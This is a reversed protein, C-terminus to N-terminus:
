ADRAGAERRWKAYESSPYRALLATEGFEVAQGDRLLLVYDTNEVAQVRHAIIISTRSRTLANIANGITRETASDLLSTAEDLIVLGPSRLFARAMALLQSEGASLNSGDREIRRDLGGPVAKLWDDLRLLAIAEMVRQDSVGSDFLTINDRLTGEFLEVHQPVYAIAARLSDKDLTRVDTGGLAVSGHQADCMRFLLRAVTTKGSGSKGVIGLSRGAPIHFSVGRLVPDTGDYGFSVNDFSVPIGDDGNWRFSRGSQKSDTRSADALLERVRDASAGAQQLDSMEGVINRLPVLLLTMYYYVQFMTGLSLGSGHVSLLGMALLMAAMVSALTIDGTNLVVALTKGTQKRVPYLRRLGRYYVSFAYSSGNLARIDERGALTEDLLGLLSASQAMYSKVTATGYSGMRHLILLAATSCLLGVWGLLPHLFFIAAVIGAILLHNGIVKLLFASLFNGLRGVDGDIREVLEGPTHAHYFALERRLCARTLDLRLRNTVKWHLDSTLSQVVIVLLQRSMTLTLFLLATVFLLSSDAGAAARDIFLGIYRPSYMHIVIGTCILAFLLLIRTRYPSLRELLFRVRSRYPSATM